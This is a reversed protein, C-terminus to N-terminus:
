YDINVQKLVKYLYIKYTEAKVAKRPKKKGEGGPKAPTKKAPVKQGTKPAM